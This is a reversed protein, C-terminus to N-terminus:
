KNLKVSADCGAGALEPYAGAANWKWVKTFDYGMAEFDAQSPAKAFVTGDQLTNGSVYDSEDLYKIGYWYCNEASLNNTAGLIAKGDNQLLAAIVACNKAVPANGNQKSIIGATVFDLLNTGSIRSGAVVCRQVDGKAASAIGASGGTSGTNNVAQVSGSVFCDTVSCCVGGIGGVATGASVSGTFATRVITLGGVYDGSPTSGQLAGFVGGVMNSSSGSVAISGSVVCDSIIDKSNQNANTKRGLIGGIQTYGGSTSISGDFTCHSITVGDTEKILGVIGGTSYSGGNIIMEVSSYCNEVVSKGMAKGVLSGFGSSNSTGNSASTAFTGSVAVGSVLGKNECVVVGNSATNGLAINVDAFKINRVTGAVDLVKIFPSTLGYAVHGDGDITGSFSDLTAWDALTIDATLKVAASPYANVVASFQDADSVLYPDDKTGMGGDFMSKSTVSIVRSTSRVMDNLAVYFSVEGAQFNDGKEVTFNGTSANYTWVTGTSGADFVVNGSTTIGLKDSFANGTMPINVTRPVEGFEIVETDKGEGSAIVTAVKDYGLVSVQSADVGVKVASNAAFAAVRNMGEVSGKMILDKVVAGAGVHAFLAVDNGTSKLNITVTKGAGDLGGKFPSASTGAPIWDGALTIDEGLVFCQAGAYQLKAINASTLTFPSSPSGDGKAFANLEVATVVEQRAGFSATLEVNGYFFEATPTFTVNGEGTEPDSAISVRVGDPLNGATVAAMTPTVRFPVSVPEVLSTISTMDLQFTVTGSPDLDELVSVEASTLYEKGEYKVKIAFYTVKLELPTGSVNLVAEGDGNAISVVTEDIWMGNQKVASFTATGGNGNEYPVVVKCASSLAAGQVYSGESMVRETDIVLDKVHFDKAVEELCGTFLMCVAAFVCLNRMAALKTVM